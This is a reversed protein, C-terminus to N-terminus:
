YLQHYIVVILLPLFILKHTTYLKPQTMYKPIFNARGYILLYAGNFSLLTSWHLERIDLGLPGTPVWLLHIVNVRGFVSGAPPGLLPRQCLDSHLADPHVSIVTLASDTCRSTTSAPTKCARKQIAFYPVAWPGNSCSINVTNKFLTFQYTSIPSKLVCAPFICLWSKEETYGLGPELIQGTLLAM